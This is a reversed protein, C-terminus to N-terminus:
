HDKSAWGALSDPSFIESLVREMADWSYLRVAKERAGASLEAYLPADDMFRALVGALGRVDGPEFVLGCGAVIEPLDSIRSAAVPKAMALAEFVKGPVQAQAYRTPLQPLAVCDSAALLEPMFAHPQYGLHIVKGQGAALVQRVYPDERQGGVLLLLPERRSGKLAALAQAIHLVGKHPVPKGAFLVVFADQPLRWKDRLTSQDFLAPDMTATDAGHVLRTGGFRQQLFGSVVSVHDARPVKRDMIWNTLGNDPRWLSLLSRLKGPWAHDLFLGTEWDEIDLVVPVGSLRRKWLALGWSTLRPKFAYIVDGSIARLMAPWVKAAFDLTSRYRFEKIEFEDQYPFFLGEGHHSGLIELEHRRQLVKAIPYIRVIPNSDLACALITIKV